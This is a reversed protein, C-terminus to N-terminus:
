NSAFFLPRKNLFLQILSMKHNIDFHDKFVYSKITTLLIRKVKAVIREASSVKEHRKASGIVLSIGTAALLSTNGKILKFLEPRHDNNNERSLAVHSKHADFVLNLLRGRTNQLIELGKVISLMTLDNITIINVRSTVLEVAILLYATLYEDSTEDPNAYFLPGTEDLILFSLPHKDLCADLSNNPGSQEKFSRSFPTKASFFVSYQLCGNCAQQYNQILKPLNPASVGLVLMNQLYANIGLGCGVRRHAEAIAM